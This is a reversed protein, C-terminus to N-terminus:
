QSITKNKNIVHYCPIYNTTNYNFFQSGLGQAPRQIMNCKVDCGKHRLNKVWDLKAEFHWGFRRFRNM